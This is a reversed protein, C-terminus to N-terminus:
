GTGDSGAKLIIEDGNAAEVQELPVVKDKTFLIGKKVVLHTVENSKPDIVVRDIRGIKDGTSTLVEANEKFQM